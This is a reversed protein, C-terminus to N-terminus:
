GRGIELKSPPQNRSQFRAVRREVELDTFREPGTEAANKTSGEVGVLAHITGDLRPARGFSLSNFSLARVPRLIEGAAEQSDFPAEIEGEETDWIWQLYDSPMVPSPGIVTAAMMGDIMSVSMATEAIPEKKLFAELRLLDEPTM